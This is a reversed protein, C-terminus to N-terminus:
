EVIRFSTFAHAFLRPRGGPVDSQADTWRAVKETSRVGDRTVERDVFILSLATFLDGDDGEPTVVVCDGNVECYTYPGFTVEKSHPGETECYIHITM